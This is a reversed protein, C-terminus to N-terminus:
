RYWRGQQELIEIAKSWSLPLEERNVTIRAFRAQTMGSASSRIADQHPIDEVFARLSDENSWATLTWTNDGLLERRLSYGILGPQGDLSSEILGVNSWFSRRKAKDDGLVAQTIAVTVPGTGPATVGRGASFGPGKFPTAIACASLGTTMAVFLLWQKLHRIM